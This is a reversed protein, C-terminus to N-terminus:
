QFGLITFIYTFELSYCGDNYFVSCLLYFFINEERCHSFFSVSLFFRGLDFLLFFARLFYRTMDALSTGSYYRYLFVDPIYLCRVVIRKRKEIANRLRGYLRSSFPIRFSIFSKISLHCFVIFRSPTLFPFYIDIKLKIKHLSSTEKKEKKKGYTVSM